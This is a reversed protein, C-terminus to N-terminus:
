SLPYASLQSSIVDNVYIECPIFHLHFHRQKTMEIYDRNTRANIPWWEEYGTRKGPEKNQQQSKGAM